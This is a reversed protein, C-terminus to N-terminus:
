KLITFCHATSFGEGLSDMYSYAKKCENLKVQHLVIPAILIASAVIIAAIIISKTM